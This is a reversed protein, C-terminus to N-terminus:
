MQWTYIFCCEALGNMVKDAWSVKKPQLAARQILNVVETHGKAKAIDIPTYGHNNPLSVNAGKELLLKVVSTHGYFAALTLPTWGNGDKLDVSARKELLLKLTSTHGNSATTTLPTWGNGDKLDISAGKELLLKVVSTHGYFAALTLPTWGNGDKLDVSARKELLLKLTSTHGNSATTTLPTWGNGDKLDISAGKELLLKVVSTHGYFAASTLPTWGNVAKLDVNAGKELLLKVASIRGVNVASMLPTRGCGDSLDISAGKSLLFNVVQIRYNSSARSLATCCNQKVLNWDVDSPVSNTLDDFYYQTYGYLSILELIKSKLSSESTTNFIGFNPDFLEYQIEGDPKRMIKFAIEHGPMNNGSLTIGITSLHGFNYKQILSRISNKGNQLEEIHNLKNAEIGKSTLQAILLKEFYNRNVEPAKMKANISKVFTQGDPNQAHFAYFATVTFCMGSDLMLVGAIRKTGLGWYSSIIDGQSFYEWTFPAIFTLDLFAYLRYLSNNVSEMVRQLSKILDCV